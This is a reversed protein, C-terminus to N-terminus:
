RGTRGALSAVVATLENADVPKAVHIQFGAMLARRRDETRAFATLAIAPVDRASCGRSRVARILEYGDLGPMGIDSILVHPRQLDLAELAERASAAVTVKAQCKMLMRKIIERADPEDDVVLVTLGALLGAPCEALDPSASPMQHSSGTLALREHALPLSITFTAGQNEGPSQVDVTGGHLDVLQRVISLGLGLGGHRRTTSGDAQRFRDFVYPLFEPKIGQGTDTVRIEARRDGRALRVTVQGGQPTFKVANSLLNWVIQQLRGPDAAVLPAGSDFQTLIEISRAEAAHAVSAVAAEISQAPNVPHIDLRLKGSIIRSIDLLDEILQAQVQANRDIVELGQELDEQSVTPLRLLQTWGTIANLPTRLEHSLTALFEDKMRNAAEAEARAEQTAKVFRGNEIAVSAMQALQVIIAEDSETFDGEVKDSLQILGMNKGDRAILPAALWGRMPPHQAAYQGFRKWAPHGELEQQALRLPRNMRCVLQYIGEGTPKTDFSRYEAYKDSLSVANVSQSWQDNLTLTAVSQHAGVIHRAEDTAIQLAAEASLSSNISVAAKALGQLQAAFHESVRRAERAEVLLRSREEEALKRETVDRAIKTFGELGGNDDVLHTTVGSAFFRSGDRRLHWREDEARGNSAARAIEVEAVEAQQDDLTFLMRFHKGLVEEEQWGFLQAAGTNWSAILGDCDLTFIAFDRVSEVVLRLREESVQLARQSKEARLRELERTREFLEVFAAVKYRLLRPVIPKTLFDIGGVEYGKLIEDSTQDAASLFIIPTHRGTRQRILRATEFGSMTPMRVDLVLVAFEYRQVLALVEPGSAARLVSQNLPELVADLAVLNRPDDDAILINVKEETM